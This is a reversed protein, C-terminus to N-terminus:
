QASKRDNSYEGRREVAEVAEAMTANFRYFRIMKNNNNNNQVILFPLDENSIVVKKGCDSQIRVEFLVAIGKTYSHTAVEFGNSELYDAVPKIKLGSLGDKDAVILTARAM